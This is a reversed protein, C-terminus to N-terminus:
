FRGLTGRRFSPADELKTQLGRESQLKQVLRRINEDTVGHPDRPNGAYATATGDSEVELKFLEAGVATFVRAVQVHGASYARQSAMTKTGYLDPAELFTEVKNALHVTTPVPSLRRLYLSVDQLLALADGLQKALVEENTM